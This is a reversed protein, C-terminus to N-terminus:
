LLADVDVLSLEKIRSFHKINRTLLPLNFYICTGAVLVDKVDLSNGTMSLKAHIEASKRISASPCDLIEFLDLVDEVKNLRGSYYGGYYLEYASIPAICCAYKEIASPLVDQFRTKGRLYDIVVNSDVCIRRTDM